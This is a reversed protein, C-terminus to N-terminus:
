KKEFIFEVESPSLSLNQIHDPYLTLRLPVSEHMDKLDNYDLQISFDEENVTNYQSLGILFSVKVTSPFFRVNLDEPMNIVSIPITVDKQTYRDVPVVVDVRDPVFRINNIPKIDFTLPEQSRVNTITDSVTYAYNINALNDRGGYLLVSDPITYIDGSLLYGSALFIQVDLIVPVKKQQLLSYNFSIRSPNYSLITTSPLLRNRLEQELYSGQMVKGNPSNIIERVNITLSDNRRRFFYKFLGYGNDEVYVEIESPLRTEFVVSDPISVYKVPINYTTNFNQRYIQMFWFVASLLVFFAFTLIKKWPMRTIGIRVRRKITNLINGSM